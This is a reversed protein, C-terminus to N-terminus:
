KELPRLDFVISADLDYREQITRVDELKKLQLLLQHYIQNKEVLLYLISQHGNGVRSCLIGELNYGRRAFLGTIHSMVGPHNHVTLQLIRYETTKM